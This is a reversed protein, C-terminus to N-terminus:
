SISEQQMTKYEGISELVVNFKDAAIMQFWSMFASCQWPEWDAISTYERRKKDPHFPDTIIEVMWDEHTQLYYNAKLKEKIIKIENETVDSEPKKIVAAAFTKFWIHVLAKQPMSAKKASRWSFILYTGSGYLEHVTEIFQNLTSVSNVVFEKKAM